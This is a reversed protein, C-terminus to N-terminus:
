TVINEQTKLHTTESGDTQGIVGHEHHHRHPHTRTNYTTFRVGPPYPLLVGECMSCASRLQSSLNQINRTQISLFSCTHLYRRRMAQHHQPPHHKTYYDAHNDQGRAWFIALQNRRARDRLWNYRMDWSKSRKQRMNSHVFAHATSNDTKLPTPPQPHGLEELIQRLIVITQANHFLGGTEAEAASAVVHRLTKCEILIAGNLPVNHPPGTTPPSTSLYYYGAIRSRAAPMVLYAADSDVHLCMDSAHFRVKVDKHHKAFALLHNAKQETLLTPHAQTASIENLAPLLSGDIARAYYLLSGVISQIRRKRDPPLTPTDDPPNALQTKKGYAPINYTHPTNTPKLPTLEHLQVVKDIYGPMSIDVYRREYNWHITLGCYDGGTWDITLSYHTKLATLLHDADAKNFYKVGFDDVCVCFKTKLTTHEWLGTSYTCPKYGHTSLVTVLKNYALVAAQKLGYMGKKIRIYVYNDTHVKSNIDYKDRIDQPIHRYHVRMYEKELMPTALFFDKLDCTLFRAGNAADSIVSNLLLKTELLSAAPSGTDYACNLKDGGVVIRVRWPETKKPRHSCVFNAYTVKVNQPVESHPIFDITDTWAVGAANGQALRGWENSLASTWVLKDTGTLLDDLSAKSGDANYISGSHQQTPQFLQNALLYTAARSKYCQPYLRFSSSFHQHIKNIKHQLRPSRRPLPLLDVRPSSVPDLQQQHQM